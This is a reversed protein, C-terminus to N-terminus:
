PQLLKRLKAHASTFPLVDLARIPTWTASLRAEIEAGTVQGLYADLTIRNNTVSHRVTAFPEVACDCAM